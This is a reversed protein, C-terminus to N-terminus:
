GIQSVRLLRQLDKLIQKPQTDTYYFMMVNGHPDVLYLSSQHLALKKFNKTAIVHETGAYEKQLLQKLQKTIPQDSLTLLVRQVRERNKGTAQRIQRMYYLNKVCREDCQPTVYLLSWRGLFLQKSIPHGMEDKLTLKTIDIPPLILQGQNVTHGSLFLGKSYTLYALIFPVLFLAILGIITFYNTPKSIKTTM